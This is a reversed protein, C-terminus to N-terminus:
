FRLRTAAVFRRGLADYTSPYTNGSNYATSGITSGVVPPQQDLLNQVGFTFTMEDTAQFRTTLDFYSKAGISSFEPLYTGVDPEVEVGDIYRWQLSVDVDDVTLTARSNLTWEPQISACNVSYYGTCDRAFSTPTAQFVSKETWNGNMVLNLGAFGLDRRYNFTFDIGSTEIRGLNSLVLPLGFTTAVPGSLAGTAPDRRISTCAVDTASGSVFCADLVDDITPTTIADTVVINYYDVTIALGPVFNPQFVGGITWTEAKEVDLDLNGGTTVNVQAAVPDIISGIFAGGGQATCIATLRADGVPKNGSCPDVELNDLGTVAPSFLEGINPARTAKNYNGRIRLGRFPEWSGGAKWTWNSGSLSYDSYRAGLEITLSEFFPQQAAIPIVLEGFAEKVNYSGFVDPAAAGNGLVEGPTQTALDSVSAATYDRYEGGIAFGIRESAWPLAFGVDGNILARVTGLTTQTTSSTTPGTVYNLMDATISGAPGFLNIPVCDSDTANLCADTSSAFAAQQLRSLLGNGSQRQVNESEGYTGFIDFGINSTIDGRVGAKYQFMTTTYESLRPGAEVFRRFTAYNFTDFAPDSPDTAAAAADCQAATLGGATCFQSRVNAPLYPNSYPIELGNGFTGSSAIITSVRNKSFMGQNYIEIGPAVEYNAQGFLNYREFPTQFINQPNFNFPAYYPVLANGAPNLQVLGLGPVGNFVTPVATASGSPRGTSSSINSVSFDRDGQYVPDAQQYGVSFVANGRGDAFNAGVTLDARITHGDGRETIQNSLNLDIGAFDKKTIFNVVGAIADAGYTTVAGGTLIDTREILAVPINNLDVVGGLGAPVLRTGDLLVINRNTGLGRLNVFSAGGNGNNVASGISPVAGPLERLFEEAVNVQQLDLEEATVVGVPNSAILNPNRVLTGTVVIDESQGGATPSEQSTEVSETTPAVAQAFAPAAAFTSGILLTSALLRQRTLKKM